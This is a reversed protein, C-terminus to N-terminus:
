GKVISQQKNRAHMAAVIGHVGGFLWFAGTLITSIIKCGRPGGQGANKRKQLGPTGNERINNKQASEGLVSGLLDVRRAVEEMDGTKTEGQEQLPWPVRHASRPPVAHDPLVGRVHIM